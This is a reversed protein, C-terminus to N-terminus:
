LTLKKRDGVNSMDLPFTTADFKPEVVAFSAAERALLGGSGGIGLRGEGCGRVKLPGRRLSLLLAEGASPSVVLVVGEVPLM